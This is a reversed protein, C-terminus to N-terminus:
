KEDNKMKNCFTCEPSHFMGSIQSYRNIGRIVEHPHTNIYVTDTKYVYGDNSSPFEKSKDACSPTIAMMVIIFLMWGICALTRKTNNM